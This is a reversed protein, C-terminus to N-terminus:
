KKKKTRTTKKKAPSRKKVARWAFYPAKHLLVGRSDLNRLTSRVTEEKMKVRKSMEKVTFALNQNKSLLLTVPHKGLNDYRKRFDGEEFVKKSIPM